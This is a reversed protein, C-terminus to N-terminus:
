QPIAELTSSPPPKLEENMYNTFKLVENLWEGPFTKSISRAALCDKGSLRALMKGKAGTRNRM